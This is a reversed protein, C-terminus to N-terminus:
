KKDKLVIHWDLFLPIYVTFLVFRGPQYEGRVQFMNKNQIQNFRLSAWRSLQM